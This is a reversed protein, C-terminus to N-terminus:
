KRMEILVKDYNLYKNNDMEYSMDSKFELYMLRKNLHDILDVLSVNMNVMNGSARNKNVNNVFSRFQDDSEYSEVFVNDRKKNVVVNEDKYIKPATTPLINVEPLEEEFDIITKEEVKPSFKVQKKEVMSKSKVDTVKEESNNVTYADTKTSYGM